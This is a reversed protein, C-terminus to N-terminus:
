KSDAYESREDFEDETLRKLFGGEILESASRESFLQSGLGPQEFWPAIPGMLMNFEKLVEYVYYNYPYKKDYTDLNSPPLAREIYASGLVAFYKGRESGFRDIKKGAEVTYNGWIRNGESDLAFGDEPPYNYWGDKNTWKDLFEKPCLNGFRSYTATESSLPFKSPLDVPGLRSDGCVYTTNTSEIGDCPNDQCHAPFTQKTLQAATYLTSTLLTNNGRSSQRGPRDLSSFSRPVFANQSLSLVLPIVLSIPERSPRKINRSKIREKRKGNNVKENHLQISRDIAIM